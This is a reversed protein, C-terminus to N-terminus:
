AGLIIRNFTREIVFLNGVRILRGSFTRQEPILNQNSTGPHTNNEPVGTDEAQVGKSTSKSSIEPIPTDDGPADYSTSVPVKRLHRRNRRLM